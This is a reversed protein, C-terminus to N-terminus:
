APESEHQPFSAEPRDHASSGWRDRPEAAFDAVVGPGDDNRLEKAAAISMGRDLDALYTRAPETLARRLAWGQKLRYLITTRKVGTEAAWQRVTQSKGAFTILRENHRPKRRPLKEGRRAPMPETIAREIAWGQALREIILEAPIGYDLAHEAIPQSVGDHEVITEPAFM